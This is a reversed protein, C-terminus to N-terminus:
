FSGSEAAPIAAATWVGSVVRLIKGNDDATVAPLGAPLESWENGSDTKKLFRGTVGSEPLVAKYAVTVTVIGVFGELDALTIRYYDNEFVVARENQRSGCYQLWARESPTGNAYWLFPMSGAAIMAKIDSVSITTSGGYYKVGVPDTSTQLLVVGSGGDMVDFSHGGDADTITVQNGGSIPTVSVTPSVGPVGQAGQPGTEGTEGRDGKEGKEGPAGNEGKLGQYVLYKLGDLSATLVPGNISESM